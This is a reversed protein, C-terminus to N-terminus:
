LSGKPLAANRECRSGQELSPCSCRPWGCREVAVAPAKEEMTRVLTGTPRLQPGRSVVEEEDSM